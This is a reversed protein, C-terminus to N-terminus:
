SGNPHESVIKEILKNLMVQVKDCTMTAGTIGDVENQALETGPKKIVIGPTGDPGTILKGIFQNKFALYDILVNLLLEQFNAKRFIYVLEPPEINFFSKLKKM